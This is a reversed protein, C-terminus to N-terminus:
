EVGNQVEVLEGRFIPERARAKELLAQVRIPDFVPRGTALFAETENGPYEQRLMNIDNGIEKDRLKARRWALQDITVKQWGVGKRQWRKAGGNYYTRKIGVIQGDRMVLENVEWYSRVIWEDNPTWRRLYQQKLVWQEDADLTNQIEKAMADPLTRGRGYSATWHYEPHQWWAFFMADWPDLREHFPVDRQKWAAKFDRYFKGRAGNATSEDFAMTGPLSPLASMVSAHTQEANAYHATESGHIIKPTMGRGPSDTESSTIKIAGYIPPGWAQRYKAKSLLGFDWPVSRDEDREKEMKTRARTAIELLEESRDGTDAVILGDVNAERLLMEFMTAQIYTSFGMKRAKLVIIRVPVGAREMRLIQAELKRQAPNLMLPVIHGSTDRVPFCREIWERRSLNRKYRTWSGDANQTWLAKKGRRPFLGREHHYLLTFLVNDRSEATRERDAQEQVARLDADSPRWRPV